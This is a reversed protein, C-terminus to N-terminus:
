HIYGAIRLPGNFLVYGLVVIYDFFFGNILIVTIERSVGLIVQCSILRFSIYIRVGLEMM